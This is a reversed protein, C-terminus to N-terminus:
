LFALDHAYLPVCGGRNSCVMGACCEEDKECSVTEESRYQIGPKAICQSIGACMAASLATAHMALTSLSCARQVTLQWNNNVMASVSCCSGQM